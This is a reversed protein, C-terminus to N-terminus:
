PFNASSALREVGCKKKMCGSLLLRPRDVIDHARAQAIAAAEAFEKTRAINEEERKVQTDRERDRKSQKKKRDKEIKADKAAAVKSQEADALSRAKGAASQAARSAEEAARTCRTKVAPDDPPLLPLSSSHAAVESHPKSHPPPRLVSSVSLQELYATEAGPTAADSHLLRSELQDLALGRSIERASCSPSCNSGEEDYDRRAYWDYVRPLLRRYQDSNSSPHWELGSEGGPTGHLWQYKGVSWWDGGLPAETIFCDGRFLRGTVSGLDPSSFIPVGKRVLVRLIGEANRGDERVSYRGLCLGRNARGGGVDNEYVTYNLSSVVGHMAALNVKFAAFESQIPSLQLAVRGGWEGTSM